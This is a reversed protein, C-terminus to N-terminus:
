LEVEAVLSDEGKSTLLSYVRMAEDGDFAKVLEFGDGVRKFVNLAPMSGDKGLDAGIWLSEGM